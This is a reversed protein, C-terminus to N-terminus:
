PVEDLETWPLCDGLKICRISKDLDDFYSRFIDVSLQKLHSTYKM